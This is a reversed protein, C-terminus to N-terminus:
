KLSTLDSLIRDLQDSGDELDPEANEKIEFLSAAVSVLDRDGQTASQAAFLSYNSCFL